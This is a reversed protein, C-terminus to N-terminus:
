NEGRKKFFFTGGGGGLIWQFMDEESILKIDIFRIYQGYM